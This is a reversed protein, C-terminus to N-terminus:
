SSLSAKRVCSHEQGWTSGPLVKLQLALLRWRDFLCVNRHITVDAAYKQRMGRSQPHWIHFIQRQSLKGFTYFWIPLIVFLQVFRWVSEASEHTFFILLPFKQLGRVREFWNTDNSVYWISMEDCLKRTWWRVKMNPPSSSPPPTVPQWALSWLKLRCKSM